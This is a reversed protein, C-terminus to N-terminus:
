GTRLDEGERHDFGPRYAAISSMFVYRQLRDGCAQAAAEVQNAPTGQAWDYALDFVADVNEQRLLQAMRALDARDAQLNRVQPGLDHTPRRHLVAVDHGGELLLEVIRRGIFQTGGIVLTRM